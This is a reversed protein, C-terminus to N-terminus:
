DEPRYIICKERFVKDNKVREYLESMTFEMRVGFEALENNESIIRQLVCPPLTEFNCFRFLLEHRKQYAPLM